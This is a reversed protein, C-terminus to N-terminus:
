PFLVFYERVKEVSTVSREYEPLGPIGMYVAPNQHKIKSEETGFATAHFETVGTYAVIDTVNEPTIGCGPLIGIRGGAQEVLKRIVEKGEPVTAAQGSTLIRDVGIEILQELAV